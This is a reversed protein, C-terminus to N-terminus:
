PRMSGKAFIEALLRRAAALPSARGGAVEAELAKLLPSLGADSRVRRDLADHLAAWLRRQAQAARRAGRFSATAQVFAETEAAVAAIGSGTLASCRVVRPRWGPGPPRLLPLASGYDAALRGAAAALDGDDKTVVVLDALEVIGRKVGQLEDGGGPAVLLMFMDALDAVATESQGVGVTEVLVRDYGAAEAVTVAEGTRLAVGGLTGGSASPRVFADPHRALGEMRTKDGLIAGGSRPSSPDVALVAVKHGQGILHLGFAEIFTSKGAGPPGSIGIRLGGGARPLLAALLAEALAEDEALTSEVLTIARALARRDRALVRAALDHAQGV